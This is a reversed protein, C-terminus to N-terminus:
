MAKVSITQQCSLCRVWLLCTGSIALADRGLLLVQACVASGPEDLTLQLEVDRELVFIAIDSVFPEDLFMAM